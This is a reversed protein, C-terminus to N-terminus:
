ESRPCKSYDTRGKKGTMSRYYRFVEHNTSSVSGPLGLPREQTMVSVGLGAAPGNELVRDPLASSSPHIQNLVSGCRQGNKGPCLLLPEPRKRLAPDPSPEIYHGLLLLLLRVPSISPAAGKPFSLLFNLRVAKISIIDM